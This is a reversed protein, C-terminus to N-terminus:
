AADRQLFFEKPSKGTEKKFARNFTAKSNFGCDYAISLITYNRNEPLPYVRIFEQVRLANIYDNFNVGKQSNIAASLESSSVKMQSALERVTLEPQLFFRENQMKSDLQQLLIQQEDVAQSEEEKEQEESFLMDAAQKQGLGSIGVYIAALGLALNWWWDQYFPLDFYADIINMIERFIIWFIMLMLFNRFWSLSVSEIQSFRDKLWERYAALLKWSHYFYYGYSILRLVLESRSGWTFFTSEMVRDVTEPGMFFVILQPLFFVFWPLLHWLHIPKLQFERNVQARLYFLMAPGFLLHVGRPFGKLENWLVNIGSFGFTYDQLELAFILMLFALLRLNLQEERWGRYLFVIVLLLCFIYAFQLPTSYLSM